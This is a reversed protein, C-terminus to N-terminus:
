VVMVRLNYLFYTLLYPTSPPTVQSAEDALSSEVAVKRVRTLLVIGLHMRVNDAHHQIMRM